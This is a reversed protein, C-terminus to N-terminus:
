QAALDYFQAQLPRKTNERKKKEIESLSIYINPHM